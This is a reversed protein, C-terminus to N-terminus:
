ANEREIMSYGKDEPFGEQGDNRLFGNEMRIPPITSIIDMVETFPLGMKLAISIPKMGAEYLSIVEAQEPTVGRLSSIKSSKNSLVEDSFLIRDVASAFVEQYREENLKPGISFVLSYKKCWSEINIEGCLKGCKYLSAIGSDDNVYNLTLGKGDSWLHIINSIGSRPTKFEMVHAKSRRDAYLDCEPCMNERSNSRLTRTKGCKPCTFTRKDNNWMSSHCVPCYKPMEGGRQVWEAGCRKCVDKIVEKNWRTTKCHPCRLPDLSRASWSYGCRLCTNYM